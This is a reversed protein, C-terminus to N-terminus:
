FPTELTPPDCVDQNNDHINCHITFLKYLHYFAPGHVEFPAADKALGWSQRIAQRRESNGVASKVLYVLRLQNYHSGDSSLCKEKPNRSIYYQHPYEPAVPPNKGAKLMASWQRVDGESPYSFQTDYSEQQFYKFVGCYDSVAILLLVLVVYHKCKM